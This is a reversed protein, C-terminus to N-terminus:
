FRKYVVSTRSNSFKSKYYKYDEYSVGFVKFNIRKTKKDFCYVVLNNKM